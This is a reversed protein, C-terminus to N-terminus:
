KMLNHSSNASASTESPRWLGLSKSFYAADEEAYKESLLALPEPFIDPPLQLNLRRFGGTRARSTV